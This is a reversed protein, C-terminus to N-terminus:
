KYIKERKLYKVITDVVKEITMESTDIILDYQTKDKYNLHYYKKYRYNDSKIRNKIHQETEKITEFSKEDARKDKMIRKCGTKLNVDLFIKVSNSIFHYSLRGDIILNDEKKGIERQYEDVKQDTFNEKEGIKNLEDINIGRELAMKGRLDGISYHVLGLQKALIKAVTTKGSGPTGSITIRM